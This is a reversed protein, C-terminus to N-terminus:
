THAAEQCRESYFANRHAATLLQLGRATQTGTTFIQAKDPSMRARPDPELQKVAQATDDAEAQGAPKEETATSNTNTRVKSVDTYTNM